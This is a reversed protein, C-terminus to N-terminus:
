PAWGFWDPALGFAAAGVLLAIGGILALITVVLLLRDFWDAPPAVWGVLEDDARLWDPVLWRPPRFALVWSVGGVTLIDGGLVLAIVIHAHRSLSLPLLVFPALLILIPLQLVSTLAAVVSGNRIVAPIDPNRYTHLAHRMTGRRFNLGTYLSAVSIVSFILWVPVYPSM